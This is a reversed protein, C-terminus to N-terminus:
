PVDQNTEKNTPILGNLGKGLGKAARSARKRPPPQKARTEEQRKQQMEALLEDFIPVGPEHEM